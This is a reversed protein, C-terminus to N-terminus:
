FLFCHMTLIIVSSPRAMSFASVIDYAMGILLYIELTYTSIDGKLPSNIASQPNEDPFNPLTCISILHVYVQNICGIYEFLNCPESKWKKVVVCFTLFNSVIANDCIFSRSLLAKLLYFCLCLCFCHCLFHLKSFLWSAGFLCKRGKLRKILAILLCSGVLWFVFLSFSPFIEQLM